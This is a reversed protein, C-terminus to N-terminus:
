AALVPDCRSEGNCDCRDWENECWGHEFALQCGNADPPTLPNSPDHPVSLFGGDPPQGNCVAYTCFALQCWAANENAQSQQCAGESCFDNTCGVGDECAADADEDVVEDCDNDWGDCFEETAVCSCVGGSCIERGLCGTSVECSSPGFAFPNPMRRSTPAELPMEPGFSRACDPSVCLADGFIMPVINHV